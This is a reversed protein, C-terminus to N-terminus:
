AETVTLAVAEEPRVTLKVEAVVPTQVTEPVVTVKTVTPVQVILALWAPLAFQFAAGLDLLGERDALAVLRDGEAREGALGEILGRDGDAGGGGGAERDAEAGGGGTDAGDGAVVTVKTVTPVQVILALWAPLAFQFAAGWTWCDKVILLPLWVIM